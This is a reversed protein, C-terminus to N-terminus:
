AAKSQKEKEGRVKILDHLFEIYEGADAFNFHDSECKLRAEEKEDDNFHHSQALKMIHERQGPTAPDSQKVPVMSYPKGTRDEIAAKMKKIKGAASEKSIQDIVKTMAEREAKTIAENSLIQRIESKQSETAPEPANTEPVSVDKSAQKPAAKEAPKREPNDIDDEDTALHFYKMIFYREGYTLASGVGKDWDNQGNAVFLNEDKDGSDTCVWTFRMSLCTHIESKEGSKAKYDQRTNVISLVEQKLLLGVENMIPKIHGLLKDGTLYDYGFAKKDKKLGSVHQQIQLLKQYINLPKTKPEASM